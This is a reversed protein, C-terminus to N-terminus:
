KKLINEKICKYVGGIYQKYEEPYYLEMADVIASRVLSETSEGLLVLLNDFEESALNEIIINKFEKLKNIKDERKM